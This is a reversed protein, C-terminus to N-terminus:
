ATLDGLCPHLLLGEVGVDALGGLAAASGATDVFEGLQRLDPGLAVDGVLLEGPGLAEDQAAVTRPGGGGTDAGAGPVSCVSRAFRPTLIVAVCVVCRVVALCSQAAPVVTKAATMSISAPTSSMKRPMMAM